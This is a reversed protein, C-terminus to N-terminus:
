ASKLDTKRSTRLGDKLNQIITGAMGISLIDVTKWNVLVLVLAAIYRLFMSTYGILRRGLLLMVLKDAHIRLSM